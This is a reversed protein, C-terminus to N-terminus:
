RLLVAELRRIDEDIARVLDFQGLEGALAAAEKAYRLSLDVNGLRLYADALGYIYTPTRDDVPERTRLLHDVAETVRNEAILHRALHFNASRHNPENQLALRFHLLAEEDQGLEGLVVGLDAHTDASHPNIELARGYSAAADDFRERAAQLMGWNVHLEESDSALMQTAEYHREAEPYRGLKGYAGILNIRAQLYSGDVGIAQEYLVIAERVNGEAELGLGEQLYRHKDARLSRVAAMFPDEIPPQKRNGNELHALQSAAEDDRGLNRYLLALAYRVAGAGPALEAARIYARQAAENDGSAELAKGLGFYGVASVPSLEVAQEFAERGQEFQGESLLSEGLRIRAAGFDPRLSLAARFHLAAEDNNGLELQVTGLYYPWRLDQPDFAAARQYCAISEQRLDYAHLAMGLRGNADARGPNALTRKRAEGILERAEPAMAELRPEPIPPLRGEEEVGGRCGALFATIAVAVAIRLVPESLPVTEPDGIRTLGFETETM